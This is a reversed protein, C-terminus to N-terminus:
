DISWFEMDLDVRRYGKYVSIQKTIQAAAIQYNKSNDANLKIITTKSPKILNKFDNEKYLKLIKGMTKSDLPIELQDGYEFKLGLEEFFFSNYLVDRFFINLGKRATGWRCGRSRVAKCLKDTESNLYREYRRNKLANSFKFLDVNDQIHKRTDKILDPKGQNRFASTSISVKVLRSVHDKFLRKSTNM